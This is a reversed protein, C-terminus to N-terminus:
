MMNRKIPPKIMAKLMSFHSRCLHIASFISEMAPPLGKRINLPKINADQIKDMHIDFVAVAMIISGMANEIELSSSFTYVGWFTFDSFVPIKSPIAYEQEMPPIAVNTPVGGLREKTRIKLIM